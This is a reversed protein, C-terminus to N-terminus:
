RMPTLTTMPRSTRMRERAPIRHNEIYRVVSSLSGLQLLLPLSFEVQFAKEMRIMLRAAALSSCGLDALSSEAPVERLDLEESWIEHLQQRVESWSARSCPTASGVAPRSRDLKGNPGLPLAPIDVFWSPMMYTPLLRSLHDRLAGRDFVAGPNMVVSAILEKDGGPLEACALVAHAVHPHRELMYEIEGLEIRYGRIKVQNDKRGLIELHGEYTLRGLDGTRYMRGGLEDTFPNVKFAQATRDHDGIYGRAVEIGGICLEGVEGRPITRGHEGLVYFFNNTLPYGYPISKWHPSIPGIRYHCSWVTCETAGGLSIVTARPFVTRLSGPLKLPIWDGSLLVLRLSSCFSGALASLSEALLMMTSPVSNWVTIRHQEIIRMLRFPDAVEEPQILVLSAGASLAGFIDYVSLDFCLSSLLLLRDSAGVGYERNICDILNVISRHEIMVGKPRGTSGSTYIVYALDSHRTSPSPNDAKTAALDPDDQLVVPGGFQVLAPYNRDAIVIRAGSSAVIYAQREAPYAPDIPVYACGAKVIALMATIAFPSREAVIAITTDPAFPGERLLLHALRNASSNLQGYSLSREGFVLATWDPHAAAIAEFAHHILRSVDLPVQTRNFDYVVAQLESRNLEGRECERNDNM